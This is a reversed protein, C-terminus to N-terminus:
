ILVAAGATGSEVCPIAPESDSSGTRPPAPM